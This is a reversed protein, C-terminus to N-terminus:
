SDFYRGIYNDAHHPLSGAPFLHSYRPINEPSDLYDILNIHIENETNSIVDVDLKFHEPRTESLTEYFAPIDSYCLKKSSLVCRKYLICNSRGPIAQWFPFADAIFVKAGASAALLLPGSHNGIFLFCSTQFFLREDPSVDRTFDFVGDVNKFIDFDTEGICAISFGRVSLESIASFYTSQGTPNRYASNAEAADGKNRLHLTVFKDLKFEPRKIRIEDSIARKRSSSLQVPRPNRGADVLDYYRHIDYYRYYEGGSLLSIEPYKPDPMQYYLNKLDVFIFNKSESLKAMASNLVELRISNFQANEKFFICKWNRFFIFEDFLLSVKSRDDILVVCIVQGNYERRLWDLYLFQHGFAKNFLVGYVQARPMTKLFCVIEFKALTHALFNKAQNVLTRVFPITM